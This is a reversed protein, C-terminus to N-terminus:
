AAKPKSGESDEKDLPNEADNETSNTRGKPINGSAETTEGSHGLWEALWKAFEPNKSWANM